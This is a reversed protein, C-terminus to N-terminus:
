SNMIQLRTTDLIMVSSLDYLSGEETTGYMKIGEKVQSSGEGYSDNGVIAVIRGGTNRLIMSVAKICSM